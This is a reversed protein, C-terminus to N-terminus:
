LAQVTHPQRLGEIFRAVAGPAQEETSREILEVIASGIVAADAFKAVETVHDANSIGFGVAIPLGRWDAEDGPGDEHGDKHGDQHDTFRRIRAVLAAADAAVNQQKGTIGTRSVAYLFGKSHAAIARLREDPSTPAALFIPALKVREMEALYEAAEEVIMDTILVGDVGAEAAADAFKALGFRLIPNLYTFIVLGAEPRANRLEGALGLVDKLGTGRALARESARQIVPGDALPDSFPVGLEIVDAGADIAALAIERSASLDVLGAGAGNSHSPTSSSLGADGATLYV